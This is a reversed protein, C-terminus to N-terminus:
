FNLLKRLHTIPFINIISDIGYLPTHYISNALWRLDSSQHELVWHGVCEMMAINCLLVCAGKYILRRYHNRIDHTIACRIPIAQAFRDIMGSIVYWYIFVTLGGLGPSYGMYGAAFFGLVFYLIKKTIIKTKTEYNINASTCKGRILGVLGYIIMFAGVGAIPTCVGHILGTLQHQHIHQKFHMYGEYTPYFHIISHHM